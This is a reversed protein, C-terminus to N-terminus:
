ANQLALDRTLELHGVHLSAHEIVHLLAYRPTIEHVPNGGGWLEQPPVFRREFQQATLTALAATIEASLEALDGRLREAGVGSAAFEAARDRRMNQGCAIGLVWARANGLTHAALAYVSNGEAVPPRWNMQAESLGDLSGVALTLRERISADYSAIEPTM